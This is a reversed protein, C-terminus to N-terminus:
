RARITMACGHRHKKRNEAMCRVLASQFRVSSNESTVLKKAILCTSFAAPSPGRLASQSRVSRQSGTGDLSKPINTGRSPTSGGVGAKEAIERDLPSLSFTYHSFRDFQFNFDGQILAQFLTEDCGSAFVEVSQALRLRTYTFTLIPSFIGASSNM